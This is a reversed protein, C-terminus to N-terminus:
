KWLVNKWAIQIAEHNIKLESLASDFNGGRYATEDLLKFWLDAFSSSQSLCEVVSAQLPLQAASPVTSNDSLMIDRAHYQAAWQPVKAREAAFYKSDFKYALMRGFGAALWRPVPDHRRTLTAAGAWEVALVEYNLKWSTSAPGLLVFTRDKDHIYVSVEQADPKVQKIKSFLDAFEGRDKCVFIILKGEWHYPRDSMQRNERKIPEKDYGVSKRAYIISREAAKAISELQKADMTGIVCANATESHALKGQQKRVNNKWLQEAFERTADVKEQTVGYTPCGFALISLLVFQM